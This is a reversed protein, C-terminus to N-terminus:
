IEDLPPIGLLLVSDLLGALHLCLSNQYRLQGFMLRESSGVAEGKKVFTQRSPVM